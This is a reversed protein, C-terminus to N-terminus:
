LMENNLQVNKLTQTVISTAILDDDVGYCVKAGKPVFMKVIKKPANLIDGKDVNKMIGLNFVATELSTYAHFGNKVSLGNIDLKKRLRYLKHHQYYRRNCLSKNDAKLIQYVILDNDLVELRGNKIAHRDMVAGIRM